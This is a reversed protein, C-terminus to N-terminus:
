LGAPLNKPLLFAWAEAGGVFGKTLGRHFHAASEGGARRSLSAGPPARTHSFSM